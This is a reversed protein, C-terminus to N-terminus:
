GGVAMHPHMDMVKLSTSKEELQTSDKEILNQLQDAQLQMEQIEEKVKKLLETRARIKEIKAKALKDAAVVEMIQDGLFPTTAFHLGSSLTNSVLNNAIYSKQGLLQQSIKSEGLTDRGGRNPKKNSYIEFNKNNLVMNYDEFSSHKTTHADMTGVGKYISLGALLMGFPGLPTAIASAVAGAALQKYINRPPNFKFLNVNAFPCNALINKKGTQQVGDRSNLCYDTTISFSKGQKHGYFPNQLYESFYHAKNYTTDDVGTSNFAGLELKLVNHINIHERDEAAFGNDNALNITHNVSKENFKSSIASKKAVRTDADNQVMACALDTLCRQSLAGGLSHGSVGIIVRGGTKHSLHEVVANIQPIIRKRAEEYSSAGAGDKELDMHASALNHTGRWVIEVRPTHEGDDIELIYGVLSNHGTEIKHVTADIQKGSISSFCPIRITTDDSLSNGILDQDTYALTHALYERHVLRNMMLANQIKKNEAM